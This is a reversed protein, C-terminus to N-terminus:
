HSLALEPTSSATELSSHPTLVISTWDVTTGVIAIVNMESVCEDRREDFSTAYSSRRGVGV